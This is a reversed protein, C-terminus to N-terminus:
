RFLAAADRRKSIGDPDSVHVAWPAVRNRISVFGYVHDLAASATHAGINQPMHSVILTLPPPALIALSGAYCAGPDPSSRAKRFRPPAAERAHRLCRLQTWYLDAQVPRDKPPEVIMVNPM